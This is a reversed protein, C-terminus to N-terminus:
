SEDRERRRRGTVFFLGVGVLLGGVVLFPVLLATGTSPLSAPESLRPSLFVGDDGCASAPFPGAEADRMDVMLGLRASEQQAAVGALDAMTFTFVMKITAGPAVPQSPALVQCRGLASLPVSRTADTGSDWASVAVGGALARSTSTVDRASVRLAAPAPTPNRIWLGASVSGGPVLVGLDGFLGGVLTPSFHVGDASVLVRASAASRPAAAGGSVLAAAGGWVLAAALAGVLAAARLRRGIRLPRM